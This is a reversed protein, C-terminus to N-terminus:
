SLLNPNLLDASLLPEMFDLSDPSLTARRFALTVAAKISKYFFLKLQILFVRKEYNNMSYTEVVCTTCKILNIESIEAFYFLFYHKNVDVVKKHVYEFPRSLIM